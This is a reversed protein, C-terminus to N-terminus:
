KRHRIRSNRESIAEAWLMPNFILLLPYLELRGALMDFMLVYKSFNSLGGFNKTPGVDGFGPGMNNYATLVATFNTIMDRGEFSVLFVSVVFIALFTYLYVNISTVTEEDLSKGDSKIRRVSKPHLYKGVERAGNKILIIFRSVKLGGGTSGACAGIFMIFILISKSFDPWKDFDATVYGTSTALTSVQFFVHRVLDALNYTSHIMNMIILGCAAAIMIFYGRVEELKLADKIRGRSILFYANFNVGFLMMFIGIVWQIYPSYSACSDNRVGFGGTGATGFTVEMAELLPMRGALLFVLEIVTMILYLWYLIIATERVKPVLKGVVPGPSEAKMLNMRSGNSSPLIALMFVLVGMGGIWHSFSRWFLCCQPLAEVDSLISSGTTTYGSIMEFLSDTFSPIAGCLCMPLASVISILIWSLATAVCGERLFFVSNAPKHRKILYGLAFSILATVLFYWGEHEHFIIAVICPFSMLGGAIELINGLVYVVIGLNM